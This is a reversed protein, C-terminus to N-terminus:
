HLFAQFSAATPQFLRFLRLRQVSFCHLEAAHRFDPLPPPMLADAFRCAAAAFYLPPLRFSDHFYYINLLRSPM